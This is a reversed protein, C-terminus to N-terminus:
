SILLNALKDSVVKWSYNKKAWAPGMTAATKRLKDNDVAESMRLVLSQVDPKLYRGISSTVKESAIKLTFEDRCFDDTPGGETTIVPLGSAIAELVPLNFGEALYPSVYADSARYLCALAEHSLNDKSYIVSGLADSVGSPNLKVAEKVAQDFFNGYLFDSGKLVLYSDPYSKKHIAFANLLPTIGKNWTMAGINLFIFAHRPLKFHKRLEKKEDRNAFWFRAPDIGHPVVHVQGSYGSQMLGYRSWNSPTVIEFESNSYTHHAESGSYVFDKQVLGFEATGFVFVRKASGGYFRFPFSIRYIIDVGDSPSSKVSNIIETDEQDFGSTANKWHAKFFPLDNHYVEFNPNAALHLLQHQNVLAYSHNIGRWGEILLKKV